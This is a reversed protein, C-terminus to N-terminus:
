SQNRTKHPLGATTRPWQLNLPSSVPILQPSPTAASLGEELYEGDNTMKMDRKGREKQKKERKSKAGDFCGWLRRVGKNQM